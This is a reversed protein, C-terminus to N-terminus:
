FQYSMYLSHANLAPNIQYMEGNSMHAYAYGLEWRKQLQYSLGARGQYQWHGGYNKYAVGPVGFQYQELWQFGGETFFNLSSTLPYAFGLAGGLSVTNENAVDIFSLNFAPYWRLDYDHHVLHSQHLYSITFESIDLNQKTTPQATTIRMKSDLASVSFSTALLCLFTTIFFSLFKM